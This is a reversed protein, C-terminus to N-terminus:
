VPLLERLYRGTYSKEVKAVEEPTGEAIIEGGKRGGEPGMDIVRDAHKVVDMNHEIVIVTNKAQVLKKIIGLLTEVDAMHLGTTPEDMVYINGKKHLQEALKLRQAEGGSLSSLTQGLTLYGLGVEKMTNLKHRVAKDEFFGIAEDVTMELVDSISKGKYKLDLVEKTYRKGRCEDCTMRINELFHMEVEVYGQGNCKPCAGDSNFSFLNASTGSARAFEERIKDFAGIYTAPNSRNSRGVPSQDIVIAEPHEETFIDNILTSKGSGAVGTVCVLVGTPIRVSVNRLNHLTADKIDIYGTPQRRVYQDQSRRSLYRGTATDATKLAEVTGSFTINGGGTGAGPGV